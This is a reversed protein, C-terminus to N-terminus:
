SGYSVKTFELTVNSVDAGENESVITVSFDEGFLAVPAKKLGKGGYIKITKEGSDSKFILSVDGKTYLSVSKLTKFGSVNFNTFPSDWIKKLKKNLVSAGKKLSCVVNSGNILALTEAKDDAYVTMLDIVDAGKILYYDGSEVDYSLIATQVKKDISVKIKAYYRGNLFTAIVGSNNQGEIYGDLKKLIRTSYEGNFSYFGNDTMYVVKKGCDVVSGGVIRVSDAEVNTALFDSQDAPAYIRTIGYSRFVYAYGKLEVIKLLKGKGDQFDIFGAEDLSVYWNTPDFNESFWLTTSEGGTTVFLRENYVCMSTIEPAAYDSVTVGDYLYIRDDLSFLIVDEGNYKYCVGEPAREFSLSSKKIFASGGNLKWEYIYGDDSYVLIRDDREDNVNDYRSYYYLKLPAAETMEIRKDGSLRAKLGEGDKLAGDSYLFNFCSKAGLPNLKEDVSSNMGGSFDFLRVRHKKVRPIVM